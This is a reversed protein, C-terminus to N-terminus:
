VKDAAPKVDSEEGVVNAYAPTSSAELLQIWTTQSSLKTQSLRLSLARSLFTLRGSKASEPRWPCSCSSVPSRATSHSLAYLLCGVRTGPFGTARLPQTPELQSIFPCPLLAFCSVLPFNFSSGILPMRTTAACDKPRGRRRPM